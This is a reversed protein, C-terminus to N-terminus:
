GAGGPASPAPVRTALVVSGCNLVFDGHHGEWWGLELVEDAFLAFARQGLLAAHLADARAATRPQIQITGPLCWIIFKERSMDWGAM